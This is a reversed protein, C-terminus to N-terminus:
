IIINKINSVPMLIFEVHEYFFCSFQIRKDSILFLHEPEKNEVIKTIPKGLYLGITGSDFLVILNQNFAFFKNKEAYFSYPKKINIEYLKGIILTM